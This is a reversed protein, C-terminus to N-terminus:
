GVYGDIDLESASMSKALSAALSKESVQSLEELWQDIKNSVEVERDLKLREQMDALVALVKQERYTKGDPSQKEGGDKVELKAIGSFIKKLHSQVVAVNSSQGLIELLDDDGLFFFRPFSDRKEELFSNLAKQCRELQDTLMELSDEIGPITNLSVVIEQSVLVEYISRFEDDVRRFRGQESPM